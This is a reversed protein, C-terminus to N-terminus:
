VVGLFSGPLGCLSLGGASEPWDLTWVTYVISSSACMYHNWHNILKQNNMALVNNICFHLILIQSWINLTHGKSHPCTLNDFLFIINSTLRIDVFLGSTDLNEHNDHCSKTLPWGNFVLKCITCFNSFHFDSLTSM